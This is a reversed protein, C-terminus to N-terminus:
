AHPIHTPTHPSTLPFSPHSLPLILPYSPSNSPTLTLPLSVLYATIVDGKYFKVNFDTFKGNTSFKGTGGYGWSHSYEGLQFDPGDVSWGIRAVHNAGM